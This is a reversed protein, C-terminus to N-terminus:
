PGADAHPTRASPGSAPPSLGPPEFFRVPWTRRRAVRYLFPDPNVAVPHGVLELLPLDTVSDTYFWSRALDIGKEDIFQQLWYIKGEEFCIPDIVRGTLRGQEVEVRTYLYHRIGLHEALPRVVYRTAGSVIAVVHGQERHWRVAEVADPYVTPLVLREVFDRGERALRRESVGRFEVIAQQTFARIDLIGAKYRLYAFLGKALDWGDVEGREYRYKMYLSGSNEAILTKDM